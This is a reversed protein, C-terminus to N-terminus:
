RRQSSGRINKAAGAVWQFVCGLGISFIFWTLVNAILGVWLFRTISVFGGSGWMRFPVGFSLFCDDCMVTKLQEYDYRNLGAILILGSIFGITSAKRNMTEEEGKVRTKM